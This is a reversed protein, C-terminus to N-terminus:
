ALTEIHQSYRLLSLDVKRRWSKIRGLLNYLREFSNHVLLLAVHFGPVGHHCIIVLDKETDLQELQYSNESNSMHILGETHCHKYANTQSAVVQDLTSCNTTLKTKLEGPPLKKTM